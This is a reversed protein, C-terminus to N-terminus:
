MQRCSRLLGLLPVGAGPRAVNLERCANGDIEHESMLLLCKYRDPDYISGAIRRSRFGKCPYGSMEWKSVHSFALHIPVPSTLAFRYIIERIERPLRLLGSENQHHSQREQM